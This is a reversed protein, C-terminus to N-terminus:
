LDFGGTFIFLAFYGSINLMLCGFLGVVGRILLSHMRMFVDMCGISALFFLVMLVFPILPYCPLLWRDREYVM